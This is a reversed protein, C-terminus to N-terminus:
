DDKSGVRIVPRINIEGSQEIHQKDRWQEPQRNKLWFICATTDPPVEEFCQIPGERSAREVSRQFGLARKKLANTVAQDDFEAKGKKVSELFDPHENKWNNLTAESINLLEALQSDQYGDNKCVKYAIENFEEKYKTPRGKGPKKDETKKKKTTRKKRPSNM